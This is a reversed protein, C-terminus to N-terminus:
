YGGGLRDAFYGVFWHFFIQENESAFKIKQSQTEFKQYIDVVHDNLVAWNNELHKKSEPDDSFISFNVKDFLSNIFEDGVGNHQEWEQRNYYELNACYDDLSGKSAEYSELYSSHPWYITDCFSEYIDEIQMEDIVNM